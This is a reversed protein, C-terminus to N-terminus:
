RVDHSVCAHCNALVTVRDTDQRIDLRHGRRLLEGRLYARPVVGANAISEIQAQTRDGGLNFMQRIADGRQSPWAGRVAHRQPLPEIQRAWAATVGSLAMYIPLCSCKPRNM